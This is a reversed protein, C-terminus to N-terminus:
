YLSRPINLLRMACNDLIQQANASHGNALAHIPRNKDLGPLCPLGPRQIRRHLSCIWGIIQSSNDSKKAVIEISEEQSAAVACCTCLLALARIQQKLVVKHEKFASDTLKDVLQITTHLALADSSGDLSAQM